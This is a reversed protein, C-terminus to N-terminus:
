VDAPVFRADLGVAGDELVLLPNVELEALEPHAAAFRSLAAVAEAAARVDLPPRGRAGLLLPACGLRLLLAEAEDATVPALASATDRFLEAHVGGAGVVVVSGFRADRRAGVLLELGSAVDATAEVSVRGGGLGEVAEAVAAADALGVVVGGADSKHLSALAKVVVPYGLEEAAAAAAVPGDAALAAGFPVGAAALAARAEVYGTAAVPEAPAPECPVAGRPRVDEVLAELGAVASEVARYVPIGTARLARAPPADWYMTHVVLPKASEHAAAGLEAAVALEQERLEDSLSSYGGFYATFLVADVADCGLLARTSRAFSFTDREGAGALDVPNAVAATPPLDARLEAQVDAPLVPLDLEAAGFLDSAVAGYGGGDGVVAVRRGRPRERALLAHKGSCNHGLKGEPRGEQV